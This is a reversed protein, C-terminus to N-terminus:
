SAAVANENTTLVNNGNSEAAAEVPAEEIPVSTANEQANDSEVHNVAEEGQETGPEKSDSEAEVAKSEGKEGVEDSIRKPRSSVRKKPPTKQEVKEHTKSASSTTPRMMRSLFDNGPAKISAISTRPKPKPKQEITSAPLSSRPAKTRPNAATPKPPGKSGTAKNLTSPKSPNSTAARSEPRPPLTSGNKASSAATSATAAGPLRVPRTPSRPKPKVANPSRPAPKKSAGTAVAGNPKSVGPGASQTPKTNTSLRSPKPVTPKQREKEAPKPADRSQKPTHQRPSASKEHPQKSSSKSGIPSASATETVPTKTDEPASSPSKAPKAASPALPRSATSLRPTAPKAKPSGNVNSTGAAKAPTSKPSDRAKEVPTSPNTPAPAKKPSKQPSKQPSKKPSSTKSSEKEAEFESGKLLTGLSQGKPALAAGGSVTEADKPDSPLMSPADDGGATTPKDPNVADTGVAEELDLTGDGVNKAADPKDQGNLSEQGDEQKDSATAVGNTKPGNADEVDTAATLDKAGETVSNQDENSGMSERQDISPSMQGSREVSVFSTRIKRGSGKVNDQGAPSRGRSPPSTDNKNEFKARLDAFGKGSM